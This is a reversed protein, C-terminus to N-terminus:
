RRVRAFSVFAVPPECDCLRRRMPKLWSRASSRRCRESARRKKALSTCRGAPRMAVTPDAIPRNCAGPLPRLPVQLMMEADMGGEEFSEAPPLPPAPPGGFRSGGQAPHSGLPQRGDGAYGYPGARSALEQQRHRALEAAERHRVDERRVANAEVYGSRPNPRSSSGSSSAAATAHSSSSSAVATM